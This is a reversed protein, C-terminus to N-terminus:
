QVNRRASYTLLPVACGARRILRISEGNGSKEHMWSAARLRRRESQHAGAERFWRRVRFAGVFPLVPEPVVAALRLISRRDAVLMEQVAVKGDHAHELLRVPDPEADRDAVFRMVPLRAGSLAQEELHAVHVAEHRTDRSCEVVSDRGVMAGLSRDELM